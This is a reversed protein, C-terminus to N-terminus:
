KVACSGIAMDISHGRDKEEQSTDLAISDKIGGQKLLSAALTTKGSGSHGVLCINQQPQGM